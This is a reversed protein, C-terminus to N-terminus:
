APGASWARAHLDPGQLQGQAEPPLQDDDPDRRPVRRIGDAPGAVGRRLQRRPAQIEEPGSLRPVAADRRAHLRQHGQGADAQATRRPGQPRPRLRRHVQGQGAHRPGADAGSPRLDQTNAADLLEMAKLNIEGTKLARALLENADTPKRTLYDLMEHFAAYLQEDEKGLIQAHDAYAAAGKLGYM